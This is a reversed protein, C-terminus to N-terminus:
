NRKLTVRVMRDNGSLDKKVSVEAHPFRTEFLKKVAEGQRYGIELYIKGNETLVSPLTEALRRYVALGGEEAFLAMEPEHEVVVEDMVDLEDRAIYPPNSLVVDFKKGKVPEILDGEVFKVDAELERANNQAVALADSSLDVATVEDQPREKKATIAIAGSGTGIDLVTLPVSPADELFWEVLEETEPRPILVEPSVHFKRGYFWEHGIIHQVPVGEAHTHVDQLFQQKREEPMADRSHKMWDLKDWGLRERLLWEAAYRERGSNELFSSAWQLVERYTQDSNTESPKHTM